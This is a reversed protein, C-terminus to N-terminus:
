RKGGRKAYMSDLEEQGGEPMSSLGLAKMKAVNASRGSTDFNGGYGAKNLPASSGPKSGLAQSIKAFPAAFSSAFAGAQEPAQYAFEAVKGTRATDRSTARAM